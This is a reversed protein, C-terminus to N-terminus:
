QKKKKKNISLAAFVCAAIVIAGGVSSLVIPLTYSKGEARPAPVGNTIVYTAEAAKLGTAGDYKANLEDSLTQASRYSLEEVYLKVPYKGNYAGEKVKFYLTFLDGTATCNEGEGVYLVEYPYHPSQLSFSDIPDMSELTKAHTRNVLEIENQDYEVRLSLAKIGDNRTLKVAVTLNEGELKSTMSFGVDNAEAQAAMVTTMGFCVVFVILLTLLLFRKM